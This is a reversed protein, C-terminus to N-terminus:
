HTDIIMGPAPKTSRSSYDPYAVSTEVRAIEQRQRELEAYHAATAAAIRAAGHRDYSEAVARNSDQTPYGRHLREGHVTVSEVLASPMAMMGGERSVDYGDNTGLVTNSQTVLGGLEQLATKHGNIKDLIPHHLADVKHALNEWMGTIEEASLLGEVDRANIRARQEQAVAVTHHHEAGALGKRLDALFTNLGDVQARADTIADMAKRDGAVILLTLREVEATATQQDTTVSAIKDQVASLAEATETLTARTAELSTM